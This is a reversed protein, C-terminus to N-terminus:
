QNLITLYPHLSGLPDFTPGVYSFGFIFLSSNPWSAHMHHDIPSDFPRALGRVQGLGARLMHSNVKPYTSAKPPGAKAQLINTKVRRQYDWLSLSLGLFFFVLKIKFRKYMAILCLTCPTLGKGKDLILVTMAICCPLMEIPPFGVKSNNSKDPHYSPLCKCGLLLSNSAILM